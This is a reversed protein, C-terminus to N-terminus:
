KKFTKVMERFLDMKEAHMNRREEKENQKADKQAKVIIRQSIWWKM